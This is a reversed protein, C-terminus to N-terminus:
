EGDKAIDESQPKPKKRAEVRRRISAARVADDKAVAENYISAPHSREAAKYLLTRLHDTFKLGKAEAEKQLLEARHPEILLQVYVRKGHKVAM